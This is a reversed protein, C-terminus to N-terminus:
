SFDAHAIYRMFTPMNNANIICKSSKSVLVYTNLPFWADFIGDANQTSGTRRALAAGAGVL